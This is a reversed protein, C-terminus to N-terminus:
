VGTTVNPSASFSVTSTALDAYLTLSRSLSDSAKQPSIAKLKFSQGKLSLSLSIPITLIQHKAQHSIQLCPSQALEVLQIIPEKGHFQKSM